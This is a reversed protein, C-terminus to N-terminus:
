LLVASAGPPTGFTMYPKGDTKPLYFQYDTM